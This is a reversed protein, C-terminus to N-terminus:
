SLLASLAIGAAIEAALAALVITYIARWSLFPPAADMEGRSAADDGQPTEAAM